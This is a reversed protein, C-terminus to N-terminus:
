GGASGKRGAEDLAQNFTKADDTSPEHDDRVETLLTIQTDSVGLVMLRNLFRVVVVSKRPGLGLQGELSLGSRRFAGLGAKPGLRRLLWYGAFLLGLVLFLAGAMSVGMSGLDSGPLPPMTSNAGIDALALSPL